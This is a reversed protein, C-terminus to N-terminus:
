NKCFFTTMAFTPSLPYKPKHKVDLDASSHEVGFISVANGSDSYQIYITQIKAPSYSFYQDDNPQLFFQNQKPDGPVIKGFFAHDTVPANENNTDTLHSIITTQMRRLDLSLNFTKLGVGWGDIRSFTETTKDFKEAYGLNNKCNMTITQNDARAAFSVSISLIAIFLNRMMSKKM